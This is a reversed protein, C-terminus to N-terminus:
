RAFVMWSREVSSAVAISSLVAVKLSFRSFRVSVSVEDSRPRVLSISRPSRCGRWRSRRRTRRCSRRGRRRGSGGRCRAARSGRGGCGSARSSRRCGNSRARAFREVHAGLLEGVRERCAVGDGDGVGDAVADAFQGAGDVRLAGGCAVLDVCLRRPTVSMMASRALWTDSSMELLTASTLSLRPRPM